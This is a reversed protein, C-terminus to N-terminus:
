APIRVEAWPRAELCGPCTVNKSAATVDGPLPATPALSRVQGCRLWLTRAPIKADAKDGSRRALLHVIM